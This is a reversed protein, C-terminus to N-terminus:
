TTRRNWAQIARQKFNSAPGTTGCSNCACCWVYYNRHAQRDKFSLYQRTSAEEGCLPCPKIAQKTATEPM